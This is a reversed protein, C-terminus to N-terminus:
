AQSVDEGPVASIKLAEIHKVSSELSQEHSIFHPVLPGGQQILDFEDHRDHAETWLPLDTNSQMCGRSSMMNEKVYSNAVWRNCWTCSNAVVDENLQAFDAFSDCSCDFLIRVSAIRFKDDM